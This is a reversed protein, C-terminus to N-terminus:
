LKTVGKDPGLNVNEGAPYWVSIYPKLEIVQKGDKGAWQNLPLTKGFSKNMQQAKRYSRVKADTYVKNIEEKTLSDKPTIEFQRQVYAADYGQFDIRVRVTDTGSMRESLLRIVEGTNGAVADADYARLADAAASVKEGNRTWPNTAVDTFIGSVGRANETPDVIEVGMVNFVPYTPDNNANKYRILQGDKDKRFDWKTVRVSYNGPLPPRPGTEVEQYNENVQLDDQIDFDFNM